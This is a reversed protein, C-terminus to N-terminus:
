TGQSREGAKHGTDGVTVSASRAFKFWEVSLDPMSQRGPSLTM